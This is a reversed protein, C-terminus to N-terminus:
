KDASYAAKWAADSPLKAGVANSFVLAPSTSAREGRTRFAPADVKPEFIDLLNNRKSILREYNCNILATSTKEPIGAGMLHFFDLKAIKLSINETLNFMMTHEYSSIPRVARKTDGDISIDFEIGFSRAVM